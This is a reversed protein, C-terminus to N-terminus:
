RDTEPKKAVPGTEKIPINWDSGQQGHGPHLQIEEETHQRKERCAPCTPDCPM